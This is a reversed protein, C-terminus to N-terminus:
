PQSAADGLSMVREINEREAKIAERKGTLILIDHAIAEERNKMGQILVNISKLYSEGSITTIKSDTNM